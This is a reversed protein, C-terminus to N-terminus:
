PKSVLFFYKPLWCLLLYILFLCYQVNLGVFYLFNLFTCFCCGSINEFIIIIKELNEIKKWSIVYIWPKWPWWWNLKSTKLAWCDCVWCTTHVTDNFSGVNQGFMFFVKGFCWRALRCYQQLEFWSCITIAFYVCRRSRAWITKCSGLFNTDLLYM